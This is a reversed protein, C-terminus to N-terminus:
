TRVADRIVTAVLSPDDWTPLHGCGPLAVHRASPLRERARASQPRTLLLRDHDGWAVTVPCPLTAVPPARWNVAHRLTARFATTGALEAFSAALREPPLRDAHEAYQRALARRIPAVRGISRVLAPAAPAQARAALLSLHVFPREWGEVFGIPSLACASLARGSLALHLAVGGGLSNGAVHFREHGCGAMFAASADALAALTPPQALPPSSGFGPLDIAFTEVDASLPGVVEAFARHSMGIGHVLLVPPGSGTRVHHLM